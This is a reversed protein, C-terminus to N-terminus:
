APIKVKSLQELLKPRGRYINKLHAVIERATDLGGLDIIHNIHDRITSYNSTFAEIAFAEIASRYLSFIEKKHQPILIDAFSRLLYINQYKKMLQFLEETMNEEAYIKGLFEVSLHRSFIKQILAQVESKWETPSAHKKAIRYYAIDMTDLLLSMALTLVQPKDNEAEAIKLLLIEWPRKHYRYQNDSSRMEVMREQVLQKAYGYDKHELAYEVAKRRVEENYAANDRLLQWAEEDRKMLRLLDIQLYLFDIWAPHYSYGYFQPSQPRSEKVKRAFLELLRNRKQNDIALHILLTHFSKELVTNSFLGTGIKGITYEFLDDKFVFPVDSTAIAQLLEFAQIFLRLTKDGTFTSEQLSSLEEIMAKVIAVADLYNEDAMHKRVQELLPRIYGALIDDDIHISKRSRETSNAIALRILERYNEVSTDESVAIQKAHFLFSNTFEKNHVAHTKIFSRLYAVDMADAAHQLQQLPSKIKPEKPKKAKAPKDKRDRIAYLTAAVHKCYQNTEFFYCTCDTSTVTNKKLSVEVNYEKTGIVTALWEGHGADDLSAVAGNDFYEKGRQTVEDNTEDFNQITLPM